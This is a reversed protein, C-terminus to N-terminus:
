CLEKLYDPMADEPVAISYHEQVLARFTQWDEATMPNGGRHSCALCPDGSLCQEAAPKHVDIGARSFRGISSGDEGSNVWVTRGDWAVEHGDVDRSKV